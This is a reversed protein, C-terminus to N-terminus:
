GAFEPARTNTYTTAGAAATWTLVVQAEGGTAKLNTPSPPASPAPTASDEASLPGTGGANVAAVRYFLKVGNSLGTDTFTTASIGTAIPTPSEGGASTGRYINYSAAGIVANWTLVNQSNGPTANFNAPASPPTLPVPSAGHSLQAGAWDAHDYGNGDGGTTVVLRLENKGAVSLALKTANSKGLFEPSQFVKMGDLWVQFIASGHNNGVEDDIGMWTVFTSYQGFLNFRVDSAAHVGLGKAFKMGNISMPVSDGAAQEGNSKDREVQGWGNSASIWSLGSLFPDPTVGAKVFKVGRITLPKGGDALDKLIAGDGNTASTWTLDSLFTTPPPFLQTQPIVISAKGPATWLLKATASGTGEYSEMKVDYRQGATLAIPARNGTKNSHSTWDDIVKAGNIWLRIGDNSVTSFTYNGTTPALVQGTWRVSFNSSSIGHAPAGTWSFDISEDSRVFDAPGTLDISNHYEGRLGLGGQALIPKAFLV